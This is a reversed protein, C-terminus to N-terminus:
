WVKGSLIGCGLHVGPLWGWGHTRCQRCQLLLSPVETIVETEPPACGASLNLPGGSAWTVTFCRVGLPIKHRPFVWLSSKQLNERSPASGPLLTEAYAAQAVSSEPLLIVPPPDPYAARKACASPTRYPISSPETVKLLIPKKQKGILCEVCM